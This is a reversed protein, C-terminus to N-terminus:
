GWVDYRSYNVDYKEFVRIFTDKAGAPVMIVGRGLKAGGNKELLGKYYKSGSKYGYLKNLFASRAKRPNKWSLIAYAKLKKPKGAYKGYLLIGESAISRSLEEWESLKGVTANIENSVGNMKYELATNSLYFEAAIKGLKARLARQASVSLDADFFIDIDSEKTATGRAASGFLIVSNLSNLEKQSLKSLLYGVAFIAYKKIESELGM